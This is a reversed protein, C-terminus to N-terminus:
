GWSVTSEDIGRVYAGLQYTYVRTVPSTPTCTTAVSGAGRKLVQSDQRATATSTSTVPTGM